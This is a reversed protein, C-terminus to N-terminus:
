AIRLVNPDALLTKGEEPADAEQDDTEKKVSPGATLDSESASSTSGKETEKNETIDSEDLTEAKVKVGSVTAIGEMEVNDGDKPLVTDGNQENDDKEETKINTTESDPRLKKAVPETDDLDVKEPPTKPADPPPMLTKDLAANRSTRSSRKRSGSPSKHTPTVCNYLALLEEIPM